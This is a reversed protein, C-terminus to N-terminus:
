VIICEVIKLKNVPYKTLEKTEPNKKVIFERKNIKDIVEKEVPRINLKQSHFYVNYKRM